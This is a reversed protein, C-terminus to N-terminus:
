DLPLRLSMVNAGCSFYMRDGLIAAGRHFLSGGYRKASRGKVRWLEEVKGNPRFRFLSMWTIGYVNGDPGISMSQERAGSFRSPVLREIRRSRPDCVFFTNRPRTTGYLKGASYILNTIGTEGPVPAFRWRLKRAKVDWAFLRAEKTRPDTGSGCVIDTGGYVTAAAPDATLSIISQNPIVVPNNELRERLTDYCALGGSYRGYEAYSGIWVRRKADVVM